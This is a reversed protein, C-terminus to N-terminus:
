HQETAATITAATGTTAATITAAAVVAAATAAATTAIATAKAESSTCFCHKEYYYFSHSLYPRVLQPALM